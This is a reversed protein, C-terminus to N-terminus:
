EPLIVSSKLLLYTSTSVSIWNMMIKCIKCIKIRKREKLKRTLWMLIKNGIFCLAYGGVIINMMNKESNKVCDSFVERVLNSYKNYFDNDTFTKKTNNEM